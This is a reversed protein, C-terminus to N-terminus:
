RRCMGEYLEQYRSQRLAEIHENVRNDLDLYVPDNGDEVGDDVDPAAAAELLEVNRPKSDVFPFSSFFDSVSLCSM